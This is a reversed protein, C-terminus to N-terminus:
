GFNVEYRKGFLTKGNTNSEAEVIISGSNRGKPVYHAGVKAEPSNYILPKDYGELYNGAPKEGEETPFLVSRTVAPGALGQIESAALGLGMMHPGEISTVPQCGCEVRFFPSSFYLCGCNEVALPYYVENSQGRVSSHALNTFGLRALQQNTQLISNRYGQHANQRLYNNIHSALLNAAVGNSFLALGDMMGRLQAYGRTGSILSLLGLQGSRLLLQRRTM